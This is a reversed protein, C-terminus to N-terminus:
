EDEPLDQADDDDPDPLAEESHLITLTKGYSGLFTVHEVIEIAPAGEFWADLTSTSEVGDEPNQNFALTSSQTPLREGGINWRWSRGKMCDSSVCYDIVSGSSVIVAVPDDSYTAYRIATALLSARCLLSLAQVALFGVGAEVMAPRFLHEPMLLGSAFFDAEKEHSEKKGFGMRSFHQSQGNRFIIDPHGDLFYHGLEHAITFRIFGENQIHPSYLIGFNDGGRVLCGAFGPKALASERVVIERRRAVEFPCIPLSAMGLDELVEQARHEAVAQDIRAAM